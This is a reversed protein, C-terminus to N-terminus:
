AVSRRRRAVLGMVAMGAAMLAYTSPEPVTSRPTVTVLANITSNGGNTSPAVVPVLNLAGYNAAGISFSPMTQNWFVNSALSSITGNMSGNLIQTGVTPISQTVTLMFNVGSFLSSGTSVSTFDGLSINTPATVSGGGVGFTISSSGVTCVNTNLVACNGANFIGVTSFSVPQAGATVSLTIAAIVATSIRTVLKM